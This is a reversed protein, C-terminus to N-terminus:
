SGATRTAASWFVSAAWNRRDAPRRHGSRRRGRVVPLGPRSHGVRCHRPPHRSDAAGPGRADGGASDQVRWVHRPSLDQRAPRVCLVSLGAEEAGAPLAHRPHLRVRGRGARGRPSTMEPLAHFVQHILSHADVVWVTRGALTELQPAPSPRPAAANGSAGESEGPVPAPPPEIPVVAEAAANQRAPGEADFGPLSTQRTNRANMPMYETGLLSTLCGSLGTRIASCGFRGPM